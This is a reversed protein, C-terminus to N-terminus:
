KKTESLVIKGYPMNNINIHIMNNNSSYSIKSNETTIELINLISVYLGDLYLSKSTRM